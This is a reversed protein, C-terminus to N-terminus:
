VEQQDFSLEVNHKAPLESIIKAIKGGQAASLLRKAKVLRQIWLVEGNEGSIMTVEGDVFGIKGAVQSARVERAIRM